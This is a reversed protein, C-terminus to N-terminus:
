LLPVCRLGSINHYLLWFVLRCTFSVLVSGPGSMLTFHARVITRPDLPEARTSTQQLVKLEQSVRIVVLSVVFVRDSTWIGDEGFEWISLIPHM